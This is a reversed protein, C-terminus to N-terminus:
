PKGAKGSYYNGIGSTVANAIGNIMAQNNQGQYMQLSAINNATNGVNAAQGTAAAISNGGMQTAANQGTGARAALMNFLNQKNAMDNGFANQYAQQGRNWANGYEESALGQSYDQLAKLTAGSLFSGKAAQSNNVAQTGQQLRFQYGPTAQLEELNTPIPTYGPTNEYDAETFPKLLSGFGLPSSTANSGGAAGTGGLTDSYRNKWADQFQQQETKYFDGYKTAAANLKAYYADLANQYATKNFGKVGGVNRFANKSPPPGLDKVPNNAGFYSGYSNLNNAYALMAKNYANANFKGNKTFQEKTPVAGAIPTGGLMASLGAMQIKYQKQAAQFAKNNAKGTVPDIFTAKNPATPVSVGMKQLIPYMERWYNANQQATIGSGGVGGGAQSYPSSNGLLFDLQSMAANGSSEYPSLYRNAASGAGQLLNNQQQMASQQTAMAGKAASNGASSSAAAAGASVAAAAVGAAIAM